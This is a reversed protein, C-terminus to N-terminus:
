YSWEITAIQTIPLYVKLGPEPKNTTFVIFEVDKFSVNNLPNIVLDEYFGTRASGDVLQLKIKLGSGKVEPKRMVALMAPDIVIKTDNM